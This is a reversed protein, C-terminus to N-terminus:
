YIDVLNGNSDYFKVESVMKKYNEDTNGLDYFKVFWIYENRVVTGRYVNSGEKVTLTYEYETIDSDRNAGFFILTAGTEKEGTDDRTFFQISGFKNEGDTNYNSQTNSIVFTYRDLDIFGFFRKKFVFIEQPQSSDGDAAVFYAYDEVYRGDGLRSFYTANRETNKLCYEKCEQISMTNFFYYISITSLVVFIFLVAFLIWKLVEKKCIYPENASRLDDVMKRNDKLKM